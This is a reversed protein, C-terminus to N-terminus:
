SNVQNEVFSNPDMSEVLFTDHYAQMSADDLIEDNYAGIYEINALKGIANTKAMDDMWTNEKFVKELTSRLTSWMELLASQAKRPFYKKVWLSLLAKKFVEVTGGSMPFAHNRPDIDIIKNLCHDQSTMRSSIGGNSDHQNGLQAFWDKNRRREEDGTKRLRSHFAEM